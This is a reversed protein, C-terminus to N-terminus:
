PVSDLFSRLNAKVREIAKLALISGPLSEYSSPIEYAKWTDVYNAQMIERELAVAIQLDEWARWGVTTTRLVYGRWEWVPHLVELSILGPPSVLEIPPSLEIGVERAEYIGQFRGLKTPSAIVHPFDRALDEDENYPIPIWKM